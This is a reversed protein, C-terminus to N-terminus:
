RMVTGDPLVVTPVQGLPNLAFLRDRAPGKQNYDVEERDFPVGALVLAAEAIASGCGRCGIMRWPQTM